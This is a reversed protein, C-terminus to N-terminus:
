IFNYLPNIQAKHLALQGPTLNQPWADLHWYRAFGQYALNGLFAGLGIVMGRRQAPNSGTTLPGTEYENYSTGDWITLLGPGSASSGRDQYFQIEVRVPDAQWPINPKTGDNGIQHIGLGNASPDSYSPLSVLDFDQMGNFNTAGYGLLERPQPPAQLYAVLCRAGAGYFDDLMATVQELFSGPGAVLVEASGHGADFSTTLNYNGTFQQGTAATMGTVTSGSKQYAAKDPGATAFRLWPAPLTVAPPPIFNTQQYYRRIM